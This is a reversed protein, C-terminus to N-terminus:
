PRILASPVRPIVSSPPYEFGLAFNYDTSGVILARGSTKLDNLRDQQTYHGIQSGDGSTHQHNYAPLGNRRPHITAVLGEPANSIISDIASNIAQAQPLTRAVRSLGVVKSNSNLYAYM